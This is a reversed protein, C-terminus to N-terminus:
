DRSTSRDNCVRALAHLVRKQVYRFFHCGSYVEQIVRTISRYVLLPLFFSNSKCHATFQLFQIANWFKRRLFTSSIAAIIPCNPTRGTLIQVLTPEKNINM